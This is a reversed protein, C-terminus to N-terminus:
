KFYVFLTFLDFGRDGKSFPTMSPHRRRGHHHGQLIKPLGKKIGAMFKFKTLRAAWAALRPAFVFNSIEDSLTACKKQGWCRNSDIKRGEAKWPISRRTDIYTDQLIPQSRTSYTLTKFSLNAEQPFPQRRTAYTTKKYCLNDEQLM